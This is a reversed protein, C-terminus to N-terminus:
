ILGRHYAAFIWQFAAVVCHFIIPITGGLWRQDPRRAMRIIYRVVMAGFYLYSWWLVVLGLRPHPEIWFGAGRTFDWSISAMLALVVMQVAVLLPYPVLGSQWQGMPPLWKPASFFVVLQGAVRGLLLLTLLWLIPSYNMLTSSRNGDIVNVRLQIGCRHM